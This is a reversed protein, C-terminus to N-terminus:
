VNCSSADGSAPPMPQANGSVQAFVHGERAAAQAIACRSRKAFVAHCGISLANATALTPRRPGRGKSASSLLNLLSPSGFVRKLSSIMEVRRWFTCNTRLLTTKPQSRTSQKRCTTTMRGPSVTIRTFVSGALTGHNRHGTPSQDFFQFLQPSSDPSWTERVQRKPLHV